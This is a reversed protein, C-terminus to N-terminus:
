TIKQIAMLYLLDRMINYTENLQDDNLETAENTEVAEEPNLIIEQNEKSLETMLKQYRKDHQLRYKSNKKLTELFPNYTTVKKQLNFLYLMRIKNRQTFPVDGLDDEFNPKITDNVLPYDAFSEGIDSQSLVGPVEIDSIVGTLQPTKGSVTYYKGRTVKYEGEPNVTANDSTNLTFTQFTGKGYTHDDGVILGRGYDQLAQAVIESASASARNVLVILPGDWQMKGGLDRLHQVAGTSDKVSVVTGKSIFLSTVEVAQALLGGTNYRLDLVVGLLKNEEKFKKIEKELDTASSSEPDQYFSYLRLYGIVGDGFPVLASSFRTETLVVRGRHIIINIKEEKANEDDEKSERIVTLTVPTNEEGRILGVAEEIDMGVVPEGNVAIIRDKPKLEKEKAAPGGDIIKVVTFGNIDDRLQAGIGYLRQQVAIMFQSAEDPTFYATHTDLAAATAKLVNTLVKNERFTPDSNLIDDEYKAQRKAIRQLAKEKLEPNLKSAADIQLAKIKRLRDLLEEENKAWPLNKFEKINVKTPLTSKDIKKELEHRRMVAKVMADHIQYFVSYNGQNYDDLVQQVLNDSPHLWQDIDSELFYTKNPDLEELSNKLARRILEPTLSQHTAHSSMIEKLKNSVITPTLQPAKAEIPWSILCTQFLLFYVIWKFRIM